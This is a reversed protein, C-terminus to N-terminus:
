RVADWNGIVHHQGLVELEIWLDYKGPNHESPDAAYRWTSPNFDEQVADDVADPPPSRLLLVDDDKHSLFGLNEIFNTPWLPPSAAPLSNSFSSMNFAALARELKLMDKTSSLRFAQYNTVWLTGMLEYYLPNLKAREPGNKAHNPPYFGFQARYREISKALQDRQVRLGDLYKPIAARVARRHLFSAGAAYAGYGLAGVLLILVVVGISQRATLQRKASSM